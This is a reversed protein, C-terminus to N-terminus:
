FSEKKKTNLWETHTLVQIQTKQLDALVILWWAIGIIGIVSMEEM